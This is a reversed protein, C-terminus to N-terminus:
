YLSCKQYDGWSPKCGKCFGVAVCKPEEHCLEICEEIITKGLRRGDYLMGYIFTDPIFIGPNLLKCTDVEEKKNLFRCYEHQFMRMKRAIRKYKIDLHGMYRESFLNVISDLYEIPAPQEQVTSAWTMADGNAPPTGGVTTLKTKVNKELKSAESRQHSSVDVGASFMSLYSAQVSVDVKQEKMEKFYSSTMTHEYTLRAGFVTTVPFHTGFTDFFEFFDKADNSKNLTKAWDIFSNSFSPANKKQLKSIFYKCKASSLIKVSEGKSMESSSSQFSSSASFSFGSFAGPIKTSVSLSKSLESTTEM